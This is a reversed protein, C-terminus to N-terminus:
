VNCSETYKTAINQFDTLSLKEARIKPDINLYNLVEILKEKEVGDKCFSNLITKRRNLFGNKILKFMLNEYKFREKKLKMYVVASDVNPAPVFVNRSVNFALKADAYYKVFLSISSNEKSKEDAVLRQAVEKQVMITISELNLNSELLKTIIPTTVYYPLNAVLIIKKNSFKEEILREFDIKLADNEIFEFNDYQALTYDLVEKLRKDIEISVVKDAKELLFKTLVGFGPGIEIVGCDKDVGSVEVIKELINRDTLFNQGFGKSFSFGFKECIEKIVSLKYLDM